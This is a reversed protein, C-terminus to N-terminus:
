GPSTMPTRCLRNKSLPLSFTAYTDSATPIVPCSFSVQLQEKTPEPSRDPILEGLESPDDFPDDLVVTHFIRYFVFTLFNFVTGSLKTHVLIECVFSLAFVELFKAYTVLVRGLVNFSRHGVIVTKNCM